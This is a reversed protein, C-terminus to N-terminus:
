AAAVAAELSAAALRIEAVLADLESVFESPRMAPGGFCAKGHRLIPLWWCGEEVPLACFLSARSGSLMAALNRTSGNTRKISLVLDFQERHLLGAVEESAAFQCRCGNKELRRQSLSFAQPSDGVLLVKVRASDM